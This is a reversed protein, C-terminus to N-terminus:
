GRRVCACRRPDAIHEKFVTYGPAGFRSLVTHVQMGSIDSALVADIAESEDASLGARWKAFACEAARRSSPISHLEEILASM